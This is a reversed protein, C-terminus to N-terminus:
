KKDGSNDRLYLYLSRARSKSLIQASKRAAFVVVGFSAACSFRSLTERYIRFGRLNVPVCSPRFIRRPAYGFSYVRCIDGFFASLTERYIRFGSFADRNPDTLCRKPVVPVLNVY